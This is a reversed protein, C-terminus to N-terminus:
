SEVLNRPLKVPPPSKAAKKTAAVEKKRAKKASATEAVDENEREIGTAFTPKKSLEDFIADEKKRIEQEEPSL